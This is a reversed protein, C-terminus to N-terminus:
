GVNKLKKIIEESYITTQNRGNEKSYYLAQDAQELWQTHGAINQHLESIGLSINFKITQDEHQVTLAEIRKRLREALILANEKDTNVLLVAFEEGGYRGAVDTKRITRRLTKSTQRIVEDGAQHGYTDNVNKFHDIDFMVLTIPQSTRKYREFEAIFCEEWYGRNNLQTLRDTRSLMGLENNASELKQKGIAAETVDYIVIGINKIGGDIGM